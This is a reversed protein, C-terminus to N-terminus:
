TLCKWMWFTCANLTTTKKTPPSDVYWASALLVRYCMSIIFTKILYSGMTGLHGPITDKTPAVRDSNAVTTTFVLAPHYKYRRGRRNVSKKGRSTVNSQSFPGPHHGHRALLCSVDLCSHVEFLPWLCGVLRANTWRDNGPKGGEKTWKGVFELVSLVTFSGFWINKFVKWWTQLCIM